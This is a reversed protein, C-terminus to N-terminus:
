KDQVDVTIWRILCSSILNASRTNLLASSKSRRTITCEDVTYLNQIREGIGNFVSFIDEEHLLDIDLKMPTSYVEINKEISLLPRKFEEQPSLSYTLKPLKLEDNLSELTEIWTLRREPGILGSSKYNKFSDRYLELLDLDEVLKKYQRHSKQLSARAKKYDELKTDEFYFGSFIFVLSLVIAVGLFILTNKLFNFDINNKM